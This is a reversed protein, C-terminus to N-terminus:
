ESGGTGEPSQNSYLYKSVEPDEINDATVITVPLKTVKTVDKGALADEIAEVALVGQEYPHQAILADFDGSKLMEVEPPGADYSIITVQDLKGAANIGNRAGLASADNTGFLGALDPHAVLQAGAIAAAKQLDSNSYEVPLVEIEPFAKMGEIFGEVRPIGSGSGPVYSILSVLGEGGLAEGMREAAAMGGAFNDTQFTATALEPDSVPADTLFVPIGKDIFQQLTSNLADEDTPGVILADLDRTLLSQLIPVQSEPSYTIAGQVIVEWGREEGEAVLAQATSNFYPHPYIGPVFAITLPEDGGSGGSAPAGSGGSAPAGSCGALLLTATAIGALSTVLVGRKRFRSRM